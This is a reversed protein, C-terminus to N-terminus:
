RCSPSTATAASSCSAPRGEHRPDPTFLREREHPFNTWKEWGHDEAVVQISSGILRVEAPVQLQEELWKWQAEGLVTPTPDTNPM